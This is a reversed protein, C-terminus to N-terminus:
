ALSDYLGALVIPVSDPIDEAILGPGHQDAASALIWVAACAADFPRLGQALLGGTLGALVDGTGGTALFPSGRADIVARGDPAAIVTDPGKVLVTAGCREAAKRAREVKHGDVPFLRAFEGEHPTIVHSESLMEFLETPDDQYVSLADADVVGAKASGLAAEVWDKTEETVGLGPGVILANRRDDRLLEEFDGVDDVPLTITGPTDGAYVTFVEKPAAVTVLGAGIRRAARAALRAAGTMRKGGAVLLHGRSYKHSRWDPWSIEESWLAPGNVLIRPGITELVSDPIGIDAIVVDGSREAGPYLLHGPKARFFTVTLDAFPADGLIEGSDGHVGSPVDVAVCPLGMENIKTVVELVDAELPRTLGAGFLADVVLPSGELADTDLPLVKGTWREANAAADGKLAQRDGLLHVAVPWGIGDLLRAVVFGDGGNNGPGCLVSVPRQEWRDVIEEFIVQGAAEMLDIGPVGGEIAAADAQHMEEVTLLANQNMDARKSKGQSGPRDM